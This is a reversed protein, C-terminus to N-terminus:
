LDMKCDELRRRAVAREQDTFLGHWRPHLIAYEFTLDLRRLEYLATFGDSMTPLLRRVAERGALDSVMMLFRSARYGVENNARECIRLMEEDFARELADSPM